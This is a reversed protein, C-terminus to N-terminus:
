WCFLELNFLLWMMVFSPNLSSDSLAAKLTSLDVPIFTTFYAIVGWIVDRREASSHEDTGSLWLAAPSSSPKNAIRRTVARSGCYLLSVYFRLKLIHFAVTWAQM